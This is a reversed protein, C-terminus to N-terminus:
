GGHGREEPINLMADLLHRVSEAMVAETVETKHEQFVELVAKRIKAELHGNTQREVNALKETNDRASSRIDRNQKALLGGLVLFLGNIVAIIVEVIDSGGSM